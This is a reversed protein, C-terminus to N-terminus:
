FNFGFRLVPGFTSMNYVFRESGSGHEYDVDILRYGLTFYSRNSIRYGADLQIQWMFDSGVGFGGINGRARLFWKESLPFTARAILSPDIWDENMKTELVPAASGGPNLVLAVKSEIENYTAGIGLELWPSVRRLLALEWGVQALEVDGSNLLTGPPVDSKLKMYLLDSSVAWLDNHAEAYLMAGIQLNSFIDSPDEDVPADPLVGVGAKGKMNPFMIYPEVVYHWGDDTPQQAHAPSALSAAALIVPLLLRRFLDPSPMLSAPAADM